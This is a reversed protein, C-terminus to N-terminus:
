QNNNVKSGNLAELQGHVNSLSGCHTSAEMSTGTFSCNKYRHVLVQFLNRVRTFFNRNYFIIQKLSVTLLLGRSCFFPCHQLLKRANINMTIFSLHKDCSMMRRIKDRMWLGQCPSRKSHISPRLPSSRVGRLWPWSMAWSQLRNSCPYFTWAFDSWFTRAAKYPM